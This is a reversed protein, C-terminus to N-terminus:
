RPVGPIEAINNGKEIKAKIENASYTRVSVDAYLYNSFGKTSNNSSQRKHRDPAIDNIVRSWGSWQDSHTHDDGPYLGARDSAIFVLITESLDPLMSPKNRATGMPEGFADLPPQFVISNLIYSSAKNDRRLEAAPDAPCIRIDDFKGLYSELQYIWSEGAEATHSTDPYSGQHDDAHLQMAVGIQRMNSACTTMRASDRINRLMVVSCATLVAIITIVVLIEVLTFGSKRKFSPHQTM